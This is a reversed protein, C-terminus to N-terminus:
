VPPKQGGNAFPDHEQELSEILDQMRSKSLGRASKLNYMALTEVWAANKEADTKCQRDDWIIQRLEALRLLQEQTAPEDATPATVPATETSPQGSPVSTPTPTAETTSAPAPAIAPTTPATVATPSGVSEKQGVTEVTIAPRVIPEMDIAEEYFIVGCLVDQFEDRCAWSRARWMLQRDPYDTWPGSKGLLKARKADARSFRVTRPRKAGVRTVTCVATYGDTGPEGEYSEQIDELLGSNRILALGADGYISPRGGIIFINAIAQTAPLGVDRGVEILAFVGEARSVSKPALGGKFLAEAYAKAAEVYELTIVRQANQRSQRKTTTAVATPTGDANRKAPPM